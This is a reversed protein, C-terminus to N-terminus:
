EVADILQTFKKRLVFLLNDFTNTTMRSCSFNETIALCLHDAIAKSLLM